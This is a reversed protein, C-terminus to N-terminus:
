SGATLDLAATLHDSDSFRGEQQTGGVLLGSRPPDLIATFAINGAVRAGFSSPTGTRTWLQGGASSYATVGGADRGSVLQKGSVFVRGDPAVALYPLDSGDSPPRSRVRRITGSAAELRAM